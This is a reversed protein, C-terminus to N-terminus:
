RLRTASSVRLLFRRGFAHAVVPGSIPAEELGGVVEIAEIEV